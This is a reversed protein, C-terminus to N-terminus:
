CEPSSRLGSNWETREETWSLQPGEHINGRGKREEAKAEVEDVMDATLVPADLEPNSKLVLHQM